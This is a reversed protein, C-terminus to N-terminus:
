YNRLHRTECSRCFKRWHERNVILQRVNILLCSCYLPFAIVQHRAAATQLEREARLRHLRERAWMAELFAANTSNEYLATDNSSPTDVARLPTAPAIQQELRHEYSLSEFDACFISDICELVPMVIFCSFFPFPLECDCNNTIPM